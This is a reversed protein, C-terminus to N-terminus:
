RSPNASVTIACYLAVYDDIMRETSFRRVNALGKAVVEARFAAAGLQLLAGAMAAEAEVPFVLAGEGAIEPLSTRDSCVVPCGCAQAEIVPWGFGECKSPYILAEALNYIAELQPNDPRPVAFVRHALGAAVAQARLEATLEAGCFVLNGPWRASASAFVRLVGAKNKRALNSGVHLWFPQNWPIGPLAALRAQAEAAEIRRYPHNLGLLIVRRMQGAQQPALRTLDQFTSTSDCAIGDARGLGALIARQLRRGLASAPCDTDEGLAGRVALLDHCTVLWRAHARRPVYIANSHDVVHVVAAEAARRRLERPFLIYKDVYGLWKAVSGGRRAALKGWAPRPRVVEIEWELQPLKEALVEGFRQMSQQADPEYNGVLLVKM